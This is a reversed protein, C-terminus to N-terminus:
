NSRLSRGKKPYKTSEKASGRLARNQFRVDAEKKIIPFLQRRGEPTLWRRAAVDRAEVEGALNRYKKFAEQHKFTEIYDSLKKIKDVVPNDSQKLLEEEAAMLAVDFEINPDNAIIKAAKEQALANFDLQAQEFQTKIKEPIRVKHTFEKPSGGSAFNEMVDQVSHQLEHLMVDEAQKPTGAKITIKSERIERGKRGMQFNGHPNSRYEPDIRIDVPINRLEPYNQFLNSHFFVDGVTDSPARDIGAGEYLRASRDTIEFRWKDDAGKFWGTRKLIARPDKLESEMRKAKELAKMSARKASVGLFMATHLFPVSGITEPIAEAYKELAQRYNGEKLAKEAETGLAISRKLSLYEGSGPLIESLISYLGELAGKATRGYTQLADLSQQINEESTPVPKGTITSIERM